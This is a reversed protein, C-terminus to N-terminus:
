DGKPVVWINRYRVPNGHDQLMISGRPARRRKIEYNDHILIGNHRVTVRSPTLLNKKDDYRPATFDVDYTQWELPPLSAMVRPAAEGYIAGCENKAPKKGFSDLVQIEAGGPLFVGSNGRGQGRRKPMFPCCFEIHLHLDGFRRKTFLNRRVKKQPDSRAPVLGSVVEMAGDVLRWDPPTDLAYTWEDLNTGDFLVVAGEPPKAGLTPPIKLVRKMTFASGNCSGTFVGEKIRGRDGGGATFNTVDGKREGQMVVEVCEEQGTPLTVIAHYKGDGDAVVKASIPRETGTLKGEWNGMVLDEAWAGAAFCVFIVSFVVRM